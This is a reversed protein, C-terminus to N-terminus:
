LLKAGLRRQSIPRYQSTGGISADPPRDLPRDLRAAIQRAPAVLVAPKLCRSPPANTPPRAYLAAPALHGHEAYFKTPRAYSPRARTM